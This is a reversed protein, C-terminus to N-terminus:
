FSVAARSLNKYHSAEGLQRVFERRKANTVSRSRCDQVAVKELWTKGEVTKGEVYLGYPGTSLQEYEAVVM